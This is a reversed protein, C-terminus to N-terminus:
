FLSVRSIMIARACYPISGLDRSQRHLISIVVGSRDEKRGANMKIIVVDHCLARSVKRSSCLM